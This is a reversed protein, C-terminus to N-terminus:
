REDPSWEEEEEDDEDIDEWEEKEDEAEKDIKRKKSKANKTKKGTSSKGDRAETRKKSTAKSADAKLKKALKNDDAHCKRVNGHEQHTSDQDAHDKEYPMKWTVPIIRTALVEGTELYSDICHYAFQHRRIQHQDRKVMDVLEGNVWKKSIIMRSITIDSEYKNKIDTGDCKMYIKGDIVIFQFCEYGTTVGLRCGEEVNPLGERMLALPTADYYKCNVGISCTIGHKKCYEPMWVCITQRVEETTVTTGSAKQGTNFFGGKGNNPGGVLKPLHHNKLKVIVFDEFPDWHLHIRNAKALKKIELVRLYIDTSVEESRVDRQPHNQSM